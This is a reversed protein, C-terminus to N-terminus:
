PLRRTLTRPTGSPSPPPTSRRAPSSCTATGPQQTPVSAPTRPGEDPRAEQRRGAASRACHHHRRRHRLNPLIQLNTPGPHIRQFRSQQVQSGATIRRAKLNRLGNTALKKKTGLQAEGLLYSGPPHCIIALWNARLPRFSGFPGM